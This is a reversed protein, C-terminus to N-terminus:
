TFSGFEMVVIQTRWLDNMAVMKGTALDEVPLSPARMTAKPANIAFDRFESLSPNFASYNYTDNM